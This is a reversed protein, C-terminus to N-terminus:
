SKHKDKYTWQFKMAKNFILSLLHFDDRFILQLYRVVITSAMSVLRLLWIIKMLSILIICAKLIFFFSIFIYLDIILLNNLHPKLCTINWASIFLKTVQSNIKIMGQCFDFSSGQRFKFGFNMLSNISTAQLMFGNM